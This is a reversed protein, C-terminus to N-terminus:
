LPCSKKLSIDTLTKKYLNLKKEFEPKENKKYKLKEEKIRIAENENIYSSNNAQKKSLIANKHDNRKIFYGCIM